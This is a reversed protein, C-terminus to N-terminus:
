EVREVRYLTTSGSVEHVVAVLPVGTPSESAPIFLVGEPELDGRFRWVNGHRSRGLYFRPALRDDAARLGTLRGEADHEFLVEARLAMWEVDSLLREQASVAGLAGTLIFFFSISERKESTRAIWGNCGM